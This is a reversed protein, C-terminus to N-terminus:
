PRCLKLKLDESITRKEFCVEMSIANSPKLVFFIMKCGFYGRVRLNSECKKEKNRRLYILSPM